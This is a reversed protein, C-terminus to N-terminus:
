LVNDIDKTIKKKIFKNWKHQKIRVIELEKKNIIKECKEANDARYFPPTIYVKM